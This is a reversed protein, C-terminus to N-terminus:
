RAGVFPNSDLRQNFEIHDMLPKNVSGVDYALKFGAWFKISRVGKSNAPRQKLPLPLSLGAITREHTKSPIRPFGRTIENLMADRELFSRCNKIIGKRISKRVGIMGQFLVAENNLKKSYSIKKKTPVASSSSTTTM